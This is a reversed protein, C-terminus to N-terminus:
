EKKKMGQVNVISEVPWVVTECLPDLLVVAKKSLEMATRTKHTELYRRLAMPLYEGKEILIARGICDVRRGVFSKSKHVSRGFKPDGFDYVKLRKSYWRKAPNIQYFSYVDFDNIGRKEKNGIKCDLYHQAAGQCLATCLYRNGYTKKWEPYERFFQGRDKRAIEALRLLDTKEIPLFSRGEKGVNSM